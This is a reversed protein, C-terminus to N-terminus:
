VSTSLVYWNTICWDIVKNFVSKSEESELESAKSDELSHALSSFVKKIQALPDFSGDQDTLKNVVQATQDNLSKLTIKEIQGDLIHQIVRQTDKDKVPGEKREETGDKGCDPKNIPIVQTFEKMWGTLPSESFSELCGWSIIDHLM